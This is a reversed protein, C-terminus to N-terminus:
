RNRGIGLASILQVLTHVVILAYRRTTFRLELEGLTEFTMPYDLTLRAAIEMEPILEKRERDRIRYIGRSGKASSIGWPQGRSPYIVTGLGNRIESV